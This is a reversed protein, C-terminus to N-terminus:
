PQNVELVVIGATTITGVWQAKTIQFAKGTDADKRFYGITTGAAGIAYRLFVPDTPSVPQESYVYMRGRKRLRIPDGTGYLTGETSVLDGFGAPIGTSVQLIRNYVAVGAFVDGAASPLRVAIRNNLPTRTSDIVLGTGFEIAVTADGTVDNKETLDYPMGQIGAQYGFPYTTQIAM